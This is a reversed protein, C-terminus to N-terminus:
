PLKIARLAGSYTTMLALKGDPTIAVARGGTGINRSVTNTALNVVAADFDGAIFGTAGNPTVAVNDYPANGSNFAITAGVVGSASLRFGNPSGSVLADGSSPFALGAAATTNAIVSVANTGLNVMRINGGYFTVFATAGSPTIAVGQSPTSTNFNAGHTVAFSSLSISGLTSSTCNAGLLPLRAQSGDPAIRIDYLTVAVCPAPITKTVTNSAVDIAAVSKQSTVMAIQGNPSIAVSGAYNGVQISPGLTFDSLNMVQVAGPATGRAVYAKTGDPTVAVGHASSGVILLEFTAEVTIDATVATTCPSPGACGGTFGRFIWGTPGFDGSFTLSAGDAVTITCIKPSVASEGACSSGDSATIVGIGHVKLTVTRVTPGADQGGSDTAGADDTSGTDGGNGGDPTGGCTGCACLALLAPAVFRNEPHKM